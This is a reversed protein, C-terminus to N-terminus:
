TISGLLLSVKTGDGPSSQLSVSGNLKSISEKVLFLGLGSGKSNQTGRYFMDFARRSVDKSMGIGNDEINIELLGSKTRLSVKIFPNRKNLDSYELANILLNNLMPKLRKLDGYFKRTYEIEKIFTIKQFHPHFRLIEISEDILEEFDIEVNGIEDKSINHFEVLEGVINELKQISYEFGKLIQNDMSQVEGLNILGKLTAVPGKLDHSARYIFEDLEQNVKQLERFKSQLLREYEKLPSIDTIQCLMEEDKLYSIKLITDLIKGSKTLYKKEITYDFSELRHINQNYSLESLNRGVLEPCKYEFLNCAAQNSRIIDLNKNTHIMAIAAGDFMQRFEKESQEKENLLRVKDSIDVVQALLYKPRIGDHGLTTVKMIAHLIEGNKRIYRKEMQHSAIKGSSVQSNMKLNQELDDPHTFMTFSNGIIEESHYGITQCFSENAMLLTGNLHAIAMGIPAADFIKFSEGFDDIDLVTSPSPELTHPPFSM